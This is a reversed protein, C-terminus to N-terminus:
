LTSEKDVDVKLKITASEVRFRLKLILLNLHRVANIDSGSLHCFHIPSAPQICTVSLFKEEYTFFIESYLYCFSLENMMDIIFNLINCKLMLNM